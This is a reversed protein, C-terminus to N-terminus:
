PQVPLYVLYREGERKVSIRLFADDKLKDVRVGSPVRQSSAGVGPLDDDRLVEAVDGAVVKGNAVFEVARQAGQPQAVDSGAPQRALRLQYVGAPLLTGGATAAVPIRVTALVDDAAANSDAVAPGAVLALAAACILPFTMLAPM